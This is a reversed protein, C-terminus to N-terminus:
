ERARVMLETYSLKSIGAPAEGIGSLEVKWFWVMASPAGKDGWRRNVGAGVNTDTCTNSYWWGGKSRAACNSNVDNDNDVDKTSFASGSDQGLVDEMLGSHGSVHLQYMSSADGIYFSDYGEELKKPLKGLDGNLDALDGNDYQLKM